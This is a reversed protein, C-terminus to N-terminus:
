YVNSFSRLHHRRLQIAYGINVTAVYRDSTWFQMMDGLNIM